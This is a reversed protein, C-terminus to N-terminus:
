SLRNWRRQRNIAGENRFSGFVDLNGLIEDSVHDLRFDRSFIQLGSQCPPQWRDRVNDPVIRPPGIRLVRVPQSIDRLAHQTIRYGIVIDEIGAPGLRVSRLDPAQRVGIDDAVIHRRLNCCLSRQLPNALDESLIWDCLSSLPASLLVYKCDARACGAGATTRLGRLEGPIRITM